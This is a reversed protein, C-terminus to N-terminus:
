GASVCYQVLLMTIDDSQKAEGAFEAVSGSVARAIEECSEKKHENLVTKMRSEGWLEKEVNMAETVGDTYLFISEGQGVETEACVYNEEEFLGLPVGPELKLPEFNERCIYPPQHGASAYQYGGTELDLIGVFVTVFMGETNRNCLENNVQELVQLLGKGELMCERILTMVRMMFLAATIGKGSVDGIVTALGDESVRFYDYFDGGVQRAPRMDAYLKFRVDEKWPDNGEPLSAKQIRRAAEMEAREREAAAAMDSTRRVYYELDGAMRNFVSTMHGIEDQSKVEIQTFRRGEERDKVFREMHESLETVPRVVYQFSLYRLLSVIALCGALIWIFVWVCERFFDSVVESRELAAGAVAQIKGASDYVPCFMAATYGYRSRSIRFSSEKRGKYVDLVELPVREKVVQGPKWIGEKSTGSVMVLTFSEGDEAPIYSYVYKLQMDEQIRETEKKYKLYLEGDGEVVLESVDAPELVRAALHVCRLLYAQNDDQEKRYNRWFRALCVLIGFGAVCIVFVVTLKRGISADRFRSGSHAAKGEDKKM